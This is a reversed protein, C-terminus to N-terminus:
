RDGGGPGLDSTELNEPQDLITIGSMERVRVRRERMYRESLGVSALIVYYPSGPDRRMLGVADVGFIDAAERVITNLLMSARLQGAINRSSSQLKELRLLRSQEREHFGITDLCHRGPQGFGEPFSLTPMDFIRTVPGAAVEIVGILEHHRRMIPVLVVAGPM